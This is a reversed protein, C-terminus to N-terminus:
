NLGFRPSWLIGSDRLSPRNRQKGEVDGVSLPPITIGGILNHGQFEMLIESHHVQDGPVLQEAMRWTVKSRKRPKPPAAWATVDLVVTCLGLDLSSGRDGVQQLPTPVTLETHGPLPKTEM